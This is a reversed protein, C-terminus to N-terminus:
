GPPGTGSAAPAPLPSTPWALAPNHAFLRDLGDTVLRVLNGRYITILDRIEPWLKNSPRIGIDRCIDAIVAGIPRRRIEAAIQEVSPLAALLAEITDAPKAVRLRAEASSKREARARRPKPEADLRPADRIIRAELAEARLLGRAIRRLILTIDNASLTPHSNRLNAAVQRGYAILARVLTLLRGSPSPRPDPAAETASMVQTLLVIRPQTDLFIKKSM